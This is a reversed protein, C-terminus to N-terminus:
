KSPARAVLFRQRRRTPRVPSFLVTGLNSTKLSRGTANLRSLSKKVGVADPHSMGFLFVVGGKVAPVALRVNKDLM